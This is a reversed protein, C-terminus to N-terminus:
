GWLTLGENKINNYLPISHIKSRLEKYTAVIPNIEQNIDWGLERFPLVYNDIDAITHREKDLLILIDWDSHEHATGRARSGFLILKAGTPLLTDARATLLQIVSNYEM